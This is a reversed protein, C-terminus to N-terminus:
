SAARPEPDGRARCGAPDANASRPTSREGTLCESHVRVLTGDHTGRFNIALHDAGTKRDRYARFRFSGHETPM